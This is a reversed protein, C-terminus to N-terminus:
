IRMHVVGVDFQGRQRNHVSRTRKVILKGEDSAAGGDCGNYELTCEDVFIRAGKGASLVGCAASRSVTVGRLKLTGGCTAAVGHQQSELLQGGNVNVQSGEGGAFVAQAKSKESRCGVLHVTGRQEAIFGGLTSKRVVCDRARLEGSEVALVGIQDEASSCGALRLHSKRMAVYGGKGNKYSHSNSVDIDARAGNNGGVQVGVETNEKFSCQDVVVSGGTGACLGFKSRALSVQKCCAKAHQEIRFAAYVAETVSCEEMDVYTGESKVCVGVESGIVTCGMMRATSGEDMYFGENQASRVEINSASLTSGRDFVRVGDLDNRSFSDSIGLTGGSQCGYGAIKNEKSHCAAVVAEGGITAHAGCRNNSKLWCGEIRVHTTGATAMIGSGHVSNRVSVRKVFAHAGEAVQVCSAGSNAVTGEEVHLQTDEGAAILGHNSNGQVNGGTLRVKAGGIAGCGIAAGGFIGLKTATLAGDSVLCGIYRSDQLQCRDAVIVGGKTARLGCDFKSGTVDSLEACAGETVCVGVSTAPMTVLTLDRANDLAKPVIEAGDPVNLLEKPDPSMDCTGYSELTCSSLKAVSEADKVFVAHMYIDMMRLKKAELRGGAQVQMGVDGGTITTSEVQVTSGQGDVVLCALAASSSFNSGLMFRAADTHLSSLMAYSCHKMKVHAGQLVAVMTDYCNVNSLTARCGEGLFM